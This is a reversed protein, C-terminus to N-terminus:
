LRLFRRSFLRAAPPQPKRRKRPKPSTLNALREFDARVYELASEDLCGQATLVARVDEIAIPRGIRQGLRALINRRTRRSPMHPKSLLSEARLSCFYIWWLGKTIDGNGTMASIIVDKSDDFSTIIKRLAALQDGTANQSKKKPM